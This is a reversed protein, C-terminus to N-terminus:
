DVSSRLRGLPYKGCALATDYMATINAPPVEPQIMHAPALIFGGGPALSDVLDAVHDRVQDTTGFPLVQQTDIGGAFCIESGYEKKLWRADMGRARPQIPNLIDVGIEIFEGVLPGVAGCTHYLIRAGPALARVGAIWRAQYPKCFTRYTELSTFVGTQMGMDDAMHVVDVLDAIETLFGHMYALDAELIREALHHYFRPDDLMDTLWQDFGRLFSYNHFLATARGPSAVVAYGASRIAQVEDRKGSWIARDQGTPWYPYADIERTTRAGRLPASADPYATFAGSINMVFGWTPDRLEGGPLREAEFAGGPLVWRLDAGFRDLIRQDTNLVCRSDLNMVPEACDDLKLYRCLARYGFPEGLAVGSIDPSGFEVPVRDPERHELATLVRERPLMM